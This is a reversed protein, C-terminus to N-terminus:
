PYDYCPPTGDSAVPGQVLYHSEDTSPASSAIADHSPIIDQNLPYLTRNDASPGPTSSIEWDHSPASAYAENYYASETESLSPASPALRVMDSAHQPGEEFPPASPGPEPEVLIDFTYPYDYFDAMKGKSPPTPFLRAPSVPDVSTQPPPLDHTVPQHSGDEFDELVEDQWLPASIPYDAVYSESSDASDPPPASALDVMRALLAKDDTAVHAAHVSHSACNSQSPSHYSSPEADSLPLCSGHVSYLGSEGHALTSPQPHYAPPSPIPIPASADLPDDVQEEPSLATVAGEGTGMYMSEMSSRPSPTPSSSTPPIHALTAQPDAVRDLSACSSRPSNLRTTSAIRKGRRQRATYKANAKWRATARAWIKQKVKVERETLMSVRDDEVIDQRRRKRAKGEVDQNQRRKRRKSKRWFLCGIILFCIVFALVLSLALILTTRSNSSESQEKWGPPLSINYSATSSTTTISVSSSAPSQIQDDFTTASATMDECALCVTSGYLTYTDVRRWRGNDGMEFKDPVHRSHDLSKKALQVRRRGPSIKGRTHIDLTPTAEALFTPCLFSPPTPSANVFTVSASITSLLTLVASSPTPSSVKRRRRSITTNHRLPASSMSCGARHPSIPKAM